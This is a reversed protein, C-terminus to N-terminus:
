CGSLLPGSGVLEVGGMQHSSESIWFLMNSSVFRLGSDDQTCM